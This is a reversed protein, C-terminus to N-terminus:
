HNNSSTNREQFVVKREFPAMDKLMNVSNLSCSFFFFCIFGLTLLLCDRRQCIEKYLGSVLEESLKM